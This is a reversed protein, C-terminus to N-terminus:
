FARQSIEVYGPTGAACAVLAKDEVSEASTTMVGDFVAYRLIVGKGGM